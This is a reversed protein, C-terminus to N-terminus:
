RVVGTPNVKSGHSGNLDRSIDIFPHLLYNFGNAMNLGRISRIVRVMQRVTMEEPERVYKLFHLSLVRMATSLLFIVQLPRFTWTLLAIEPELCCRV